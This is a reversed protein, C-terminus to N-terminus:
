GGPTEVMQWCMYPNAPISISAVASPNTTTAHVIAANAPTFTDSWSVITTISSCTSTASYGFTMAITESCSGVCANLWYEFTYSGAGSAALTQAPVTFSSPWLNTAGVSGFSVSLSGASPPASNDI